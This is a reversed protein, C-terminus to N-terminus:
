LCNVEQTCALMCLKPCRKRAGVLVNFMTCLSPPLRFDVSVSVRLMKADFVSKTRCCLVCLHKFETLRKGNFM